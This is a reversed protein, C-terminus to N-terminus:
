SKKCTYSHCLQVESGTIIGEKKEIRKKIYLVDDGITVPILEDYYKNYITEQLVLPIFDTLLGSYSALNEM